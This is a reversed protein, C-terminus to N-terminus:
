IEQFGHTVANMEMVVLFLHDGSIWVVSVCRGYKGASLGPIYQLRLTRTGGQLIDGAIM